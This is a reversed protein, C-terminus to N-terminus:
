RMKGKKDAQWVQDSGLDLATLWGSGYCCTDICRLYGLDLIEGNKQATHGVIAIKGSAHPGPLRLKLSDWRLVEGPQNALPLEAWYSAHVLIHRQTEYFPRCNHLFDVHEQPVGEPVAGDYSAVTTDGGFFLWDDYWDTEGQCIRLMMEDHNGLIPILRCRSRLAILDEIVERSQPGRDVYDGLTVITDNPQPDIVELLARWAALYGHIDGVAIIRDPM